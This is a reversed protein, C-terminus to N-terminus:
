KIKVSQKNKYASVESFYPSLSNLLTSRVWFPGNPAPFDENEMVCVKPSQYSTIAM